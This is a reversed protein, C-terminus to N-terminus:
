PDTPDMVTSVAWGGGRAETTSAYLKALLGVLQRREGADLPAFFHADYEEVARAIQALTTRGVPTISVVHRRRDRADPARRAYGRAELTDLLEVMNGSDIRLTRCLDQQSSGSRAGLASLVLFHLPRLDWGALVEKFGVQVATGVRSLLFGARDVPAEPSEDPAV